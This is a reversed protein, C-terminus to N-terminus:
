CRAPVPPQSSAPTTMPGCSRAMMVAADAVEGRIEKLRSIPKKARPAYVRNTLIVVFVGQVPDIWVSTGTFGTHGFADPSMLTGSNVTETTDRSEWGLARNKASRRTFRQVTAPLFLHQNASLQGDKLYLQAYRAIDHGTSFLGAHGSVGGLRAANQDNVQGSISAGHWLNSPATRRFVARPPSFMTQSMGLPTFVNATAFRDLPMGSVKEIIWGLLMANLDSYEVRTNPNWRLPERLVIDRATAPDHALTDLRLFARMGSNHALLNWVQIEEKGEGSFEPLYYQVPRDLQVQGKEVLLMISPTTAVVKTLSALDYLTSDPDPVPSKASWNFHGFGRSLLISDRTGIVVVAGPFVGERIGASISREVNAAAAIQALAVVLTLSNLKFVENL